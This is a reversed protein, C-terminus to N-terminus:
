LEAILNDIEEKLHMKAKYTRPIDDQSYTGVYGKVQSSFLALNKSLKKATISTGNVSVFMKGQEAQHQWNEALFGQKSLQNLVYSFAGLNKVKATHMCLFVEKLENASLAVVFFNENLLPLLAELQTDTLCSFEIIPVETFIPRCDKPVLMGLKIKVEESLDNYGKLWSEQMPKYREWDARFKDTLKKSYEEFRPNTQVLETKPRKPRAMTM